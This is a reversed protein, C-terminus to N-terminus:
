NKLGRKKLDYEPDSSNGLTVKSQQHHKIGHKLLVNRIATHSVSDVLNLEKSVYGALVKLGHLSLCNM